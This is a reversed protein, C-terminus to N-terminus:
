MGTVGVQPQDGEDGPKKEGQSGKHMSHGVQSAGASEVRDGLKKKQLRGNM